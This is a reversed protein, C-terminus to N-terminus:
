RSAWVKIVKAEFKPTNLDQPLKNFALNEVHTIKEGSPITLSITEEVSEIKDCDGEQGEQCAFADVKLTLRQVVGRKSRNYLCLDLNYNRRYSFNGSVGCIEIDSADVRSTTVGRGSTDLWLALITLLLLASSLAIRLKKSFSSFFLIWILIIAVLPILLRIMPPQNISENFLELCSVM